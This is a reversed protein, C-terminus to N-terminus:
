VVLRLVGALGLVAAAVLPWRLREASRGRPWPGKAMAYDLRARDLLHQAGIRVQQADFRAKMEEFHEAFTGRARWHIEQAELALAKLETSLSVEERQSAVLAERRDAPSIGRSQKFVFSGRVGEAWAILDNQLAPSIGPLYSLDMTLADYATAVGYSALLQESRPGHTAIQNQRILTKRLLKDRQGRHTDRTYGKLREKHSDKLNLYMQRVDAARSIVQALDARVNAVARGLDMEAFSVNDSGLDVGDRLRLRDPRFPDKRLAWWRRGMVAAGLGALAVAAWGFPTLLTTATTAALGWAWTHFGSEARVLREWAPEIFLSPGAPLPGVTFKPPVPAKLVAFREVEAYLRYLEHLNAKYVDTGDASVGKGPFFNAGTKDALECWPCVKLFSMHKHPTEVKCQILGKQMGLLATRWEAPTPRPTKNGGKVFAVEFYAQIAPPVAGFPLSMPPHTWGFERGRRGYAFLRERIVYGISHVTGRLPPVGFYPHRGLFLFHFVLVALGFSDHNITRTERTFDRGQLEPPTFESVGVLCPYVGDKDTIAFSDCDTLRVTGDLAVCINKSNVDGIVHGAAHVSNMAAAVNMAVHLLFAWDADPFNQRRHAPSYLEHLDRYGTVRPMTFGVVKHTTPDKLLGDPWAAVKRLAASGTAIMVRLKAVRAADVAIKSHYIKAVRAADGDIAYITGEGGRGIEAGLVLATGRQDVVSTM